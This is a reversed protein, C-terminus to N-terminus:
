RSRLERMDVILEKIAATLLPIVETYAISLYDITDDFDIHTVGVAEPLVKQVDQAILFSRRKDESDTKLRGIVTRLQLVKDQANEIPNIIIKLNEDSIASWSTAGALLEVGGSGGSRVQIGSLNNVTGLIWGVDPSIGDFYISCGVGASSPILKIRGSQYILVNPNGNSAQYSCPTRESAGFFNNINVYAPILTNAITFIGNWQADYDEYYLNNTLLLSKIKNNDRPYAAIRTKYFTSGTMQFEIGYADYTAGILGIDVYGGGHGTCNNVIASADGLASTIRIAGATAGNFNLPEFNCQSFFINGASQINVCYDTQTRPGSFKCQTFEINATTTNSSLIGRIDCSNYLSQSDSRCDTFFLEICPVSHSGHTGDDYNTSEILYSNGAMTVAGTPLLSEVVAFQEVPVASDGMGSQIGNFYSEICSDVHISASSVGASYLNIKNHRMKNAHYCHLAPGYNSGLAMNEISSYGNNTLGYQSLTPFWVVTGQLKVCGSTQSGTHVLWTAEMGEGLLTIFHNDGPHEPSPYHSNDIITITNSVAYVGKPFFVTGSEGVAAIAAMISSYSDTLGTPDAGFDLVNIVAGSIMSYTAKTLSM